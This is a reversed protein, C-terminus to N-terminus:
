DPMLDYLYRMVDSRTLIGIIRDNHVVPLRGVDYKVMLKAAQTLSEGPAITLVRPSM